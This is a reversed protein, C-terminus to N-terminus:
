HGLPFFIQMWLLSITNRMLRIGVHAHSPRNYHVHMPIQPRMRSKSLFFFHHCTFSYHAHKYSVLTHNSNTHWSNRRKKINGRKILILWDQAILETRRFQLEVTSVVLSCCSFQSEYSQCKCRLPMFANIKARHNSSYVLTQLHQQGSSSRWSCRLCGDPGAPHPILM